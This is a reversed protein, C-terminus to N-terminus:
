EAQPEESWRISVGLSSGDGFYAPFADAFHHVNVGLEVFGHSRLLNVLHHLVPRNAVPLLQKPLYDTLPLLRTGFGAAM